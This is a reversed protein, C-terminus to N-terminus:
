SFQTCWKRRRVNGLLYNKKGNLVFSKKKNKTKEFQTVPANRLNLSLGCKWILRLNFSLSRKKRWVSHRVTMKTEFQTVIIKKWISYFITYRLNLSRCHNRWQALSVPTIKPNLSLSHDNESQAVSQPCDWISYCFIIEGSQSVPTM